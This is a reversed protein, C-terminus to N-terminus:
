DLTKPRLSARWGGPGGRRPSRSAIHPSGLVRVEAITYADHDGALRDLLDWRRWLARVGRAGVLIGGLFLPGLALAALGLEQWEEQRLEQLRASADDVARAYM